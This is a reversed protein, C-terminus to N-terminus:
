RGSWVVLGTWALWILAVGLLAWSFASSPSEPEREERGEARADMLLEGAAIVGYLRSASRVHSTGDERRAKVYELTRDILQKELATM